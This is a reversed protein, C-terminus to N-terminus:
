YDTANRAPNSAALPVVPAFRDCAAPLRVRPSADAAPVTEKGRM